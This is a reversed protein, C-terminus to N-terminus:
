AMALSEATFQDTVLVNIWGGRLAGLIAQRKQKGCAIGVVMPISKLRELKLGLVQKSGLADTIEEGSANYFRLCINGVAGRDELSQREEISFTNGSDVLWPSPELSGIGLLAVTIRGFLEMTERVHPDQALVDAAEKSAVLGPAALFHADGQILRALQSVLYCAHNEISPRGEGGLIQVVKCESVKWVPHMQQVVSLLSASWSAVGIVARPRLTIELFHAAAAGVASQMTDESGNPAQAIIVQRLGFKRELLEELDVFTGIPPSVTTRVIGLEEARKLFRCITGQSVNLSTAIELQNRGDEYYMRSVEAILRAQSRNHM